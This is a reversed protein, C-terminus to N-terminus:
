AVDVKVEGYQETRFPVQGETKTSRLCGFQSYPVLDMKSVSNNPYM